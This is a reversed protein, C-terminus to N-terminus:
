GPISQLHPIAPDPIKIRGINDCDGKRVRVPCINENARIRAPHGIRDLICGYFLHNEAKRLQLSEHPDGPSLLSHPAVADNWAGQHYKQFDLLPFLCLDDLYVKSYSNGIRSINIRCNQQRAVRLTDDELKRTSQILLQDLRERYRLRSRLFHSFHLMM